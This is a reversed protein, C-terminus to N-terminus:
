IISHHGHKAIPAVASATGKSKKPKDSISVAFLILAAVMNSFAKTSAVAYEPGAHLYAGNDTFRLQQVSSM